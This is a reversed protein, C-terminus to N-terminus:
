EHNLVEIQEILNNIYEGTTKNSEFNNQLIELINSSIQTNYTPHIVQTSLQNQEYITELEQQNEVKSYDSLQKFTQYDIIGAQWARVAAANFSIQYYESMQAISDVLSSEMNSKWKFAESDPLLICGAFIEAEREEITKSNFDSIGNQHNAFHHYVEHWISFNQRGLSHNTNVFIFPFNGKKMYFGSLNKPAQSKIVFYGLSSVLHMSDQIPYTIGKEQIFAEAYPKIRQITAKYSETKMENNLKIQYTLSDFIQNLEEVKNLIEETNELARFSVNSLDEEPLMSMLDEQEIDLLAAAMQYDKAAWVAKVNQLQRLEPESLQQIRQQEKESKKDKNLLNKILIVIENQTYKPIMLIREKKKMFCASFRKSIM